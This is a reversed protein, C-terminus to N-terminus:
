ILVKTYGKKERMGRRRQQSSAIDDGGWGQNERDIAEGEGTHGRPKRFYRDHRRKSIPLAERVGQCRVCQVPSFVLEPIM